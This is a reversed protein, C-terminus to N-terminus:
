KKNLALFSELSYKLEVSPFKSNMVDFGVLGNPLNTAHEVVFKDREIKDEEELIKIDSEFKNILMQVKDNIKKRRDIELLLSYYSDIYCQLSININRQVELDAIIRDFVINTSNIMKETNETVETELKEYNLMQYPQFFESINNNFEDVKRVIREIKVLNKSLTQCDSKLLLMLNKSTFVFQNITELTESDNQSEYAICSDFQKNFSKLIDVINNELKANMQLTEEIEDNIETYDNEFAEIERLKHNLAKSENQTKVYLEDVSDLIEQQDFQKFIELISDITSQLKLIDVFDILSSKKNSFSISSDVKINKLKDKLDVFNHFEEITESNLQEKKKKVENISNNLNSKLSNILRLNDTLKNKSEEVNDILEAIKENEAFSRLIKDNAIECLQKAENLQEISHQKLEHINKM